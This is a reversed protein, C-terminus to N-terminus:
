DVLAAWDEVSKAPVLLHPSLHEERSLNPGMEAWAVCFGITEARSPDRNLQRYKFCAKHARNPCAIYARPQGSAHSLTFKVEHNGIKVTALEDFQDEGAAIPGIIEDARPADEIAGRVLQEGEGAPGDELAYIVEVGVDPAAGKLIMQFQSNTMRQLEDDSYAVLPELSPLECLCRYYFHPRASFISRLGREFLQEADLLCKFYLGSSVVMSLSFIREGFPECTHPGHRGEWGLRRLELVLQLKHAGQIDDALLPVALAPVSPPRARWQSRCIISGAVVGVSLAGFEDQRTVLVKQDVLMQLIYHRFDIDLLHVFRSPDDSWAGREALSGVLSDCADVAEEGGGAVSCVDLLAQRVSAPCCFNAHEVVCSTWRRLGRLAAWQCLRRVDFQILDSHGEPACFVISGDLDVQLVSLRLVYVISNDVAVHAPRVLHRREPQGEVVRFFILQAGQQAEEGRLALANGGDTAVGAETLATEYLDLQSLDLHPPEQVMVEARVSWVTGTTLLRKLFKCLTEEADTTKRALPRALPRVFQEWPLAAASSASRDTFQAGLGSQYFTDLVVATPAGNGQHEESPRVCSIAGRLVNRRYWNVELFRLFRPDRDLVEMVDGRRMQAALAAFRANSLRKQVHKFQSHAAEIRRCMVPALAYHRLEAFLHPCVVELPRGTEQWLDLQARLAGGHAFFLHAVRHLRNAHGAGCTTDYEGRLKTLLNFVQSLDAVGKAHGFLGLIGYPLSSWFGLKATLTQVAQTKISM